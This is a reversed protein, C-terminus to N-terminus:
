LANLAIKISELKSTNSQIINFILEVNNAIPRKDSEDDNSIGLKDQLYGLLETQKSLAESITQQKNGITTTASENM